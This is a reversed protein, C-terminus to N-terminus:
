KRWTVVWGGDNVNPGLITRWFLEERAKWRTPAASSLGYVWGGAIQTVVVAHYWGQGTLDDGVWPFLNPLQGARIEHLTWARTQQVFESYAMQRWPTWPKFPDRLANFPVAQIGKRALIPALNNVEASQSGMWEVLYEHLLALPELGTSAAAAYIVCFQGGLLDIRGEVKTPVAIDFFRVEGQRAVDYVTPGDARIDTAPFALVAILLAGVIIRTM